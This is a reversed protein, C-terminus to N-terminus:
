VHLINLVNNVLFIFFDSTCPKLVLSKNEAWMQCLNNSLLTLSVRPARTIERRMIILKRPFWIRIPASQSYGRTYQYLLKSMSNAAIRRLCLDELVKFTNGFFGTQIFIYLKAVHDAPRRPVLCFSYPVKTDFIELGAMLNVVVTMEQNISRTNELTYRGLENLASNGVKVAVPLPWVDRPKM